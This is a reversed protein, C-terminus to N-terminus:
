RERLVRRPVVVELGEHPGALLKVGIPRDEYCDDEDGAPEIMVMVTTGAAIKVGM